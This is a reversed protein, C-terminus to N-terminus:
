LHFTGDERDIARPLLLAIPSVPIGCRCQRPRRRAVCWRVHRNPGLTHRLVDSVATCAISFKMFVSM